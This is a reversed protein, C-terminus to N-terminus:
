EPMTQAVDFADFAHALLPVMGLGFGATVVWTTLIAGPWNHGSLWYVVAGLGVGIGGAVGLTVVKAVILLMQRGIAQFDFSSIGTTRFPFLLCYLNEIAVLLLNLPPFMVAAGLLAVPEAGKTAIAIVSLCIWEGLCLIFVPAGLQGLVLRGAPIPLTKLDEMRNIDPRFDFPVMAPAFLAFGALTSISLLATASEGGRPTSSLVISGIPVLCVALAVVMRGISRASSTLQRWLNPGVGGLWPLMPLEFRAKSAGHWPDGQRAKRIRAYLKESAAASAEMFRANMALVVGLLAVDIALALATSVLLDPWIREAAFTSVFPQFPATVVAIVTSNLVGELLELVPMAVARQLVPMSAGVAAALVGVLFVQRFRTFALVGITSIFLGVSLTFLYLLALSLFMGLYASIWHPSHHALLITMLLATLIAACLGGVIKYLLLQRPHYPGSFLFNVESPSYYVVRDGPSVIVNLLCYALLGLPGFRRILEPQAMGPAFLMTILTPVFVLSGVVALLLGKLSGLTRGFRRRAANGRLKLLLWLSRDM